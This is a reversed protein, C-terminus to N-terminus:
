TFFNKIKDLFNPTKGESLTEELVQKESVLDRKVAKESTFKEGYRAKLKEINANLVTEMSAGKIRLPIAAYWQLDGIEELINVYDLEVGKFIHAYVAELIENAETVLGLSSHLLLSQEPTLSLPKEGERIVLTPHIKGYFVAKKLTDLFQASEISDVVGEELDSPSVSASHDEAVLTKESLEKYEEFNM